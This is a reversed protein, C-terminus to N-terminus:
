RYPTLMSQENKVNITDNHVLLLALFIKKFRHEKSFVLHRINVPKHHELYGQVKVISYYKGLVHSHM